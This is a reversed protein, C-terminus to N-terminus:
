CPVIFPMILALFLPISNFVTIIIARPNLIVTISNRSSGINADSSKSISYAHNGSRIIRPPLKKNQNRFSFLLDSDGTILLLNPHNFEFRPISM